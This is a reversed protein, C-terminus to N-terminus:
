TSEPDWPLAGLRLVLGTPQLTHAAMSSHVYTQWPVAPEDTIRSLTGDAFPLCPPFLCDAGHVRSLCLFSCSNACECLRARMEERAQQAATLSPSLAAAPVPALGSGTSNDASWLLALFGGSGAGAASEGCVRSYHIRLPLPSEALINPPLALSGYVRRHPAPHKNPESRQEADLVLFDGVWIRLTSVEDDVDAAFGLLASSPGAAALPTLTGIYEASQNCGVGAAGVVAAATSNGLLAGGFSTTNFLLRRLGGGGGAKQLSAAPGALCLWIVASAALM